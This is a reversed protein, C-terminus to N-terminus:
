DYNFDGLALGVATAYGLSENFPMDPVYKKPFVVNTWVDALEVKQRMSVSVYDAFGALNAGRGCLIIKKIQPRDKGDEDKHTHWYIFHKSIEDKLISVGNLLTSFVEQNDTNRMLGYKLKMKEAEAFSIKFNKELLKTLTVGGIDLTSTFVVMGKNVISIGTRRNGFDVVMHADTDGHKVVARALAQAELEFSPVFLNCDKLIYLYSEIVSKPVAAVEVEFNQEDEQLLEYDFVVEATPIPVYEELSLEIMERMNKAGERPVKLKFLYIQEEPLSVRASKIKNDRVFSILTNKLSKPEAIKGSDIVGAPMSVEGFRGIKVGNRSDLFEIFKISEDSIDLGFSPRSLFHPMPFFKNNMKRFM